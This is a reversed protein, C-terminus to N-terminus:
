CVKRRDKELYSVFGRPVREELESLLDRSVRTQPEQDRQFIHFLEPLHLARIIRM